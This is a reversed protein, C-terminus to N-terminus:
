NKIQQAAADPTSKASSANAKLFDDLSTKYLTWDKSFDNHSSNPGIVLKKPESGEDFMRKGHEYPIVEDFKGAIILLPKHKGRVYELNDLACEPDFMLTTPYINLFPAREKALREPSTFGSELIISQYDRRKGIESSTGTGMSEGYLVIQNPKYHKQEVLYDYAALGDDVVTHVTPVGKSKGYGRYDYAFVSIGCQLMTKIKEIRHDVNGANGHSYLLVDPCGEVKYYLANLRADGVPITVEEPVIGELSRMAVM